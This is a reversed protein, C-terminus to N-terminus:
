ARQPPALEERGGPALKFIMALATKNSLWSKSRVTRHWVTAFSSEIPNSTRLHKLARGPLSNPPVVL